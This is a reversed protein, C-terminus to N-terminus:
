ASQSSNATSAATKFCSHQIAAIYKIEVYNYKTVSIKYVNLFEKKAININAIFITRLM